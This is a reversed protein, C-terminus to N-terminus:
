KGNGTPQIPTGAPLSPRDQILPAIHHDFLQGMQQRLATREDETTGSSLPHRGTRDLEFDHRWTICMSEVIAARADASIVAPAAQPEPPPAQILEAIRNAMVRTSANDTYPHQYKVQVYDFDGVKIHLTGLWDREITVSGQAAADDEVPDVKASLNLWQATPADAPAPIGALMAELDAAVREADPAVPKRLRLLNIANRLLPRCTTNLTVPIASAQAVAYLLAGDEISSEFDGMWQVYVNRGPSPYHPDINVVSVKAVPTDCSPHTAPQDTDGTDVLHAMDVTVYEGALKAGCRCCWKACGDGDLRVTVADCSECKEALLHGPQVAEGSELPRFIEVPSNCEPCDGQNDQLEKLSAHAGCNLCPVPKTTM